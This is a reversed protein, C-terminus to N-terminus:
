SARLDKHHGQSVSTICLSELPGDNPCENLVPTGQTGWPVSEYAHLDWHPPNPVRMFGRIGITLVRM